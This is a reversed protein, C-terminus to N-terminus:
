TNAVGVTRRDADRSLRRIQEAPQIKQCGIAQNLGLGGHMISPKSPSEPREMQNMKM